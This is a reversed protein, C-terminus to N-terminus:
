SQQKEALRIGEAKCRLDDLAAIGSNKSASYGYKRALASYTPEGALQVIAEAEGVTLIIVQDGRMM